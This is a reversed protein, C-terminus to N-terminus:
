ICSFWFGQLSCICAIIKNTQSDYMSNVAKVQTKGTGCDRDQEMLWRAVCHVIITDSVYPLIENRRAQKNAM